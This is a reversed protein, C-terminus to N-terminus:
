CAPPEAPQRSLLSRSLLLSSSAYILPIVSIAAILAIVSVWHMGRM